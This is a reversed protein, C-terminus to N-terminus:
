LFNATALRSGTGFLLCETKGKHIFLSNDVLWDNVKALKSTLTSSSIEKANTATFNVVTNGAYM